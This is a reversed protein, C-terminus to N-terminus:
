FQGSGDAADQERIYQRVQELEFGVTSVRLRTGLLTRRLFEEGQRFATRLRDREKGELIWDSDSGPTQSPDRYVHARPGADLAGGRDPM